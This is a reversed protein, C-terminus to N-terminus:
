KKFLLFLSADMAKHFLFLIVVMRNLITPIQSKRTTRIVELKIKAFEKNLNMDDKIIQEFQEVLENNFDDQRSDLQEQDQKRNYLLIIPTRGLVKQEYYSLVLLLLTKGIQPERSEFLLNKNKLYSSGYDKFMKNLYSMNDEIYKFFSELFKKKYQQDFRLDRHQKFLSKKRSRRVGAVTRAKKAKQAKKKAKEIVCTRRNHGQQGCGKCTYPKRKKSNDM